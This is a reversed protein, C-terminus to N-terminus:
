GNKYHDTMAKSVLMKANLYLLHKQGLTFDAWTERLIATIYYHWEIKSPHKKWTPNEYDDLDNM